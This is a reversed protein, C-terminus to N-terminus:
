ISEDEKEKKDEKEIKKKPKSTDTSSLVEVRGDKHIFVREKKTIKIRVSMPKQNIIKARHVLLYDV